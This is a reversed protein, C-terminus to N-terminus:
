AVAHRVGEPRISSVLRGIALYGRAIAFQPEALAVIKRVAPFHSKVADRLLDTGGGALVITTIDNANQILAMARQLDQNLGNVAAQRYEALDFEGPGLSVVSPSRQLAEEYISAPVRLDGSLDPRKSRIAASVSRQLHDIYKAVGGPVAGMRENFPRIGNSALVDLTHFGYDLTLVRASKLDPFEDVAAVLAGLPQAVVQVHNVTIQMTKGSAAGKPDHDPLVHTGKLRRQLAEKNTSPTSLLLGVVLCDVTTCRSFHLAGLMLAMYSPTASYRDDRNREGGTSMVLEVDKGVHYLAGDVEVTIVRVGSSLATNADRRDALHAASSPFVTGITTGQAPSLVKTHGHGLDIALINSAM